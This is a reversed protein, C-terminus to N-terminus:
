SAGPDMVEGTSLLTQASLPTSRQRKAALGGHRTRRSIFRKGDGDIAAGFRSSDTALYGCVRLALQIAKAADDAAGQRLADAAVLATIPM